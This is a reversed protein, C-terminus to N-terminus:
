RSPNYVPPIIEDFTSPIPLYVMDLSKMGALPSDESYVAIPSIERLPISMDMRVSKLWASMTEAETRVMTPGTSSSSIVPSPSITGTQGNVASSLGIRELAVVPLNLFSVLKSTGVSIPAGPFLAPVGHLGAVSVMGVGTLDVVLM